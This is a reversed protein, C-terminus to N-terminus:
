EVLGEKRYVSLLRDYVIAAVGQPGMGHMTDYTELHTPNIARIRSKVDSEGLFAGPLIIALVNDKLPMSSSFQIEISSSREDQPISNQTSPQAPLRALEHLGQLIFETPRIETNKTSRGVYYDLNNAYFLGIYRSISDEDPEIELSEIATEKHFHGKYYGRKFAGTDLPFARVRNAPYIKPKLAFVVPFDVFLNSNEEKRTKYAPRGYFFYLLNEKFVDCETPLLIASDIIDELHSADAIHVLPLIGDIPNAEDIVEKLKLGMIGGLM